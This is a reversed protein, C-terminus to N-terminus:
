SPPWDAGALALCARSYPQPHTAAVTALAACLLSANHMAMAPSPHTEGYVKEYVLLADEYM